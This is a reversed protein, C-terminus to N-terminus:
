RRWDAVARERQGAAALREGRSVLARALTSLSAGDSGDSHLAELDAVARDIQAPWPATAVASDVQALRLRVVADLRRWEPLSQAQALLPALTAQAERLQRAAQPRADRLAAIWGAHAYAHALDRRWTRNDPQQEVLSRLLSLTEEADRAAEDLRGRDLALISSRLLATALKRRWANADPEDAVLERLMGTQLAYGSAAADFQGRSEQATSLWSLSDVLEYRLPKDGPKRALLARKIAVSRAFLDAAEDTRQRSNALTGLNNLAYSLELQWRPDTPARAVLQEAARLYDLWHAHAPDMRKQRFDYYGQWYAVTGSEALAELSGPTERRARAMTEAAREFAANAEDFRALNMLVEGVTRLARAHNVLERPQMDAEPMRELYALAQSGVSDLLQLNGIPRLQEALDGLMFGVLQQAQDRRQEAERRAQWAQLGLGISVLTLAALAGIAGVRLWQRRRQQRESARLFELDAASLDAPLRRAAERAEALPRGPNLLHDSR